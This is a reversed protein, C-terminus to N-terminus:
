IITPTSTRNDTHDITTPDDDYIQRIKMQRYILGDGDDDLERLKVMKLVETDTQCDNAPDNSEIWQCEFGDDYKTGEYGNM